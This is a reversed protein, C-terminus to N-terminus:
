RRGAVEGELDTYALSVIRWRGGHEMLTFADIGRWAMVNTSDGFRADYRAWAQALNRHVRIAAGVMREEFIPKSGPGEPARAVFAAVSQLDVRPAPGGGRDHRDRRAGARSGGLM